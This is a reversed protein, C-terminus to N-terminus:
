HYARLSLLLCHGHGQSRAGGCSLLLHVLDCLLILVDEGGGYPHRQVTLDLVRNIQGWTHWQRISWDILVRNQLIVFHLPLNLLQQLLTV